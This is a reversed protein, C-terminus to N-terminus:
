AARATSWWHGCAQCHFRETRRSKAVNFGRRQIKTSQCTPCGPRDGFLTLDLHNADWPALRDYVRELLSVDMANYRRMMAWAKPDNDVICSKWMHWGTHPLKRGVGLYAGLDDLKNSWFSFRQRAIKLTDVIKYPAPPSLQHKIFRANSKKTDFPANHAVVVDAENFLSWIDKV